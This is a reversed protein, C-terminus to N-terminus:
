PKRGPLFTLRDLRGLLVDGFASPNHDVHVQLFEEVADIVVQQHLFERFLDAVPSYKAEDAPIEFRAHHCVPHYGL